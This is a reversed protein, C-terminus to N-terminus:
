DRYGFWHIEVSPDPLCHQTLVAAYRFDEVRRGEFADGLRRLLPKWMRSSSPFGRLLLITPADVPGVERYFVRRGDLRSRGIASWRLRGLGLACAM